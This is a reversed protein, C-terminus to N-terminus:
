SLTLNSPSLITLNKMESIVQTQPMEVENLLAEDEKSVPSAGGTAGKGGVAGQLTDDQMEVDDSTPPDQGESPTPGEAHPLPDVTLTTLQHPLEGLTFAAWEPAEGPSQKNLYNQCYAMEYRCQKLYEKKEEKEQCLCECKRQARQM